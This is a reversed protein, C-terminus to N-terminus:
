TEEVDTPRQDVPQLASRQALSTPRPSDSRSKATPDPTQHCALQRDVGTIQLVRNVNRSRTILRLRRGADRIVRNAHVLVSIGTASLFTVASVGLIVDRDPDPLCTDLFTRLDPATALDIEGVVEIVTTTTTPRTVRFRLRADRRTTHSTIPINM